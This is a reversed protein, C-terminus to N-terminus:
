QDKVDLLIDKEFVNGQDTTVKFTIKHTEGDAGGQIRCYAVADVVSFSDAEIIATTSNEGTAYNAATVESLSQNISEGSNLVRAFSVDIFFKEQPQKHTSDM